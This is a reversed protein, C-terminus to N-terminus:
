VNTGIEQYRIPKYASKYKPSNKIRCMIEDPDLNYYQCYDLFVSENCRMEAHWKMHESKTLVLLNDPANNLRNFDIHHVDYEPNLYLQGDIVISNNEDLLHQEAVLRHEFVMDDSNKFPHDLVRILRYGYFSIKEDSKWSSNLSGKLGFQHNKDGSMYERKAIRHCERSCYKTNYNKIHSPKAHFQKGCVCCVCNKETQAKTFDAHCKHSCFIHKRTGETRFRECKFTKGCWECVADVYAPKHQEIVYYIGQINCDPSNYKHATHSSIKEAELCERLSAYEILVETTAADCKWVKKFLVQVLGM